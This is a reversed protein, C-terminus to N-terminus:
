KLAVNKEYRGTRKPAKYKEKMGEMVKRGEFFVPVIGTPVLSESAAVISPSIPRYISHPPL